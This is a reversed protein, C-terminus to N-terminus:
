QFSEIASEKDDFVQFVKDMRTSQFMTWVVSNECDCKILRLDGGEGVARKLSFVIAGLFTSDMFKLNSFDLVLNINGKHILQALFNKADEAEKITARELNVKVVTCNEHIEAILNQM